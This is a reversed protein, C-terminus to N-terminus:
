WRTPLYGAVRSALETRAVAAHEPPTPEGLIHEGAVVSRAFRAVQEPSPLLEDGLYTLVILDEGSYTEIALSWGQREDWLLAVDRDPFASLQGDLALYVSAPAGADITCSELGVGLLAGAAAVYGRLGRDFVTDADVAGDVMDTM